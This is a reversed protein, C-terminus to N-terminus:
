QDYKKQIDAVWEVVLKMRSVVDHGDSLVRNFGALAVSTRLSDNEIYLRLKHMLEEKSRFFDVERGEKYLGSLEDSYESLLMTKTAPIEFCRRTYTDRNLRSFFCLAVKSGCLSKNYDDGWATKVPVLHRLLESDSLVPDWYKGPGFIRLKIGSKVIEELLAIRGDAEFHGAFVVDCEFHLKDKESLTVSHTRLPAYWSRLFKVKKAGINEYQKINRERHALVLDYEPISALFHRWLWFPHNGTFPDDENHSIFIIKPHRKKIFRLTNKTIHTGRYISVLDPSFEDIKKKFDRNINLIVPGLIFKNQFKYVFGIIKASLSLSRIEFYKNWKFSFVEHGLAQYAQAVGEEHVDSYWDGAVLIRM